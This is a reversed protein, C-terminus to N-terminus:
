FASGFRPRDKGQALELSTGLFREDGLQVEETESSAQSHRLSGQRALEAEQAPPLTSRVITDGYYFAVQSAAIRSVQSAVGDDIEYGIM